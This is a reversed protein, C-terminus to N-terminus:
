CIIEVELIPEIEVDVDLDVVEVDVDLDIIEVDLPEVIEVGFTEVFVTGTVGATQAKLLYPFLSPTPM